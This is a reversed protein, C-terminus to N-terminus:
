QSKSALFRLRELDVIIGPQEVGVDQPLSRQILDDLISKIGANFRLGLLLAGLRILIIHFRLQLTLLEIL